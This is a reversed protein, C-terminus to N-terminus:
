PGEPGQGDPRLPIESAGVPRLAAHRYDDPSVRRDLRKSLKRVEGYSPLTNVRDTSFDVPIPRASGNALGEMAEELVRHDVSRTREMLTRPDDNPEVPVSGVALLEGHDIRADIRHVSVGMEAAGDYLEWFAPPGGRYEPISGHHLNIMGDRPVGFVEASIVRNGVSVGLDPAMERLAAICEPSNVNPVEVVPFGHERGIEQLSRDYTASPRKRVRGRVELLLRWAAYGPGGHRLWARLRTLQRSRDAATGTDVITGGIDLYPPAEAALHDVIRAANGRPNSTLFVVRM